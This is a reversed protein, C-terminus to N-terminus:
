VPRMSQARTGRAMVRRFNPLTFRDLYDARFGDFSVLLLTPKQLHEPRNVGGSGQPMASPQQSDAPQAAGCALAISLVCLTTARRLVRLLAMEGSSTVM